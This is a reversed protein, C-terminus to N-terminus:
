MGVCLLDGKRLIEVQDGSVKVITSPKKYPLDGGDILLDVGPMSQPVYYEDEGSRNASTTTIPEGLEKILERCFELGSVRISVFKNGLNFYEPLSDKRPVVISLPGPWYKKALALAMKSFEGYEKAMELGDVMISIPKDMTMGKMHYLKKLAQEHFIDVALGYCTETPHMVVGDEDFIHIAKEIAGPDAIKIIEM